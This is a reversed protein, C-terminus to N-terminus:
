NGRHNETADDTDVLNMHEVLDGLVAEPVRMLAEVTFPAPQGDRDVFGSWDTVTRALLDRLFGAHDVVERGGRMATHRRLMASKEGQPIRRYIVTADDYRFTRREQEDILRIPM